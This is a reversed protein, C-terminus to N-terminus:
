ARRRRSLLAVAKLLLRAVTESGTLAELKAVTSLVLSATKAPESYFAAHQEQDWAMGRTINSTQKM